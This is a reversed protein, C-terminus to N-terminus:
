ISYYDILSIRPVRSIVLICAGEAVETGRANGPTGSDKHYERGIKNRGDANKDCGGTGRDLM